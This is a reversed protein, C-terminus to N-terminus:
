DSSANQEAELKCIPCESTILDKCWGGKHIVGAAELNLANAMYQIMQTMQLVMELPEVRNEIKKEETM